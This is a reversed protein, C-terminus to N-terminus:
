SPTLGGGGSKRVRHRNVLAALEETSMRGLPSLAHDWDEDAFSVAGGARSHHRGVGHAANAATAAAIAV